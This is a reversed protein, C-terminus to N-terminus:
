GHDDAYCAIVAILELPERGDNHIAHSDGKGTLVADGANVRKKEKGDDLIGSGRTIIYVEDEGAHQHVGIGAGPPLVLRACLRVNATFEPKEFYHHVTVSGAGGRMKDRVEAKMDVPRRIM